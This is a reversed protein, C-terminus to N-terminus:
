RPRRHPDRFFALVYLWAAAPLAASPAFLVAGVVALVGFVLTGVLIERRGYRTLPIRMARVGVRM